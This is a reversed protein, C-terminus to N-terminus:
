QNAEVVEYCFSSVDHGTHNSVADVMDTKHETRELVDNLDRDPIDLSFENNLRSLTSDGNELSEIVIDFFRVLM